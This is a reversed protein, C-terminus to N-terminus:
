FLGKERQKKLKKRILNKKLPSLRDIFLIGNLHDIEHSLARALLDDAEIIKEKGSLTYGKVTVRASRAVKEQINPISLCGEVSIIEGEKELIEPNILIILEKNKEGASLDVTILQISKGVQPASLGVGPADYMTEVMSGALNTVDENINEIRDAKKQLVSDGYKKIEIIAM